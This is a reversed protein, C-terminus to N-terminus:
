LTSNLKQQYVVNANVRVTPASKSNNTILVVALAALAALLAGGALAILVWQKRSRQPPESLLARCRRLWQDTM